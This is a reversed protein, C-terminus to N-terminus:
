DPQRARDARELWTELYSRPQYTIDSGLQEEPLAHRTLVEDFARIPTVFDLGSQAYKDALVIAAQAMDSLEVPRERPLDDPAGTEGNAGVPAAGARAAIHREAWAPLGAIAEHIPDALSAPPDPMWLWLFRLAVPAEGPARLMAAVDQELTPRARVAALAPDRLEDISANLWPLWERLPAQPSLAQLARRQAALWRQQEDNAAAAAARVERERMWEARWMTAGGSVVVLSVAAAALRWAANSGSPGGIAMVTGAVVCVPVVVALAFAWPKFSASDPGYAMMVSAISAAGSLALWGFAVVAQWARSPHIWGLASRRCAIAVAGALALWRPALLMPVMVLGMANAGAAHRADIVLLVVPLTLLSALGLLLYLLITM